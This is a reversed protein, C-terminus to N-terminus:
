MHRYIDTRLAKSPQHDVISVNFEADANLIDAMPVMGMMSKGEKDVEWGDENEEEEDEDNELDFAYSMITSGMRHALAILDDDSLSQSDGFLEANERIVPLINARFMQEAEDKGVKKRAASAQLESLQEDSWFMPTDFEEPLVDFYPKWFSEQGRMYEYIMVLILCSWSDQQPADENDEYASLDFVKPLKSPLESTETGM